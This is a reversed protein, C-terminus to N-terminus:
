ATRTPDYGAAQLHSQIGSLLQVTPTPDTSFALRTIAQLLDNLKAGATGQAKFGVEYSAALVACLSVVKKLSPAERGGILLEADPVELAFTHGGSTVRFVHSARDISPIREIKYAPHDPISQEVQM